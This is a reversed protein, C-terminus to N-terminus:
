TDRLSPAHDLPITESHTAPDFGALIYRPHYNETTSVEHISAAM